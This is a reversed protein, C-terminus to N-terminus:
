NKALWETMAAYINEPTDAGWLAGTTTKGLYNGDKELLWIQPVSHGKFGMTVLQNMHGSNVEVVHYGRLLEQGLPHKGFKRFAVSGPSWSEVTFILVRKGSSKAQAVEKALQGGVAQLDSAWTSWSVEQNSSAEKPAASKDKKKFFDFLGM